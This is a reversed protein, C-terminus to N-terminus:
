LLFKDVNAFYTLNKQELLRIILGKKLIRRVRVHRKKEGKSKLALIGADILKLRAGILITRCLKRM